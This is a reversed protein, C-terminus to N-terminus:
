ACVESIDAQLVCFMGLLLLDNPVFAGLVLQLCYQAFQSQFACCMLYPSQNCGVAQLRLTVAIVDIFYVLM